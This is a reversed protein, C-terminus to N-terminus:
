TGRVCILLYKKIDFKRAVSRSFKFVIELLGSVNIVNYPQAIKNIANIFNLDKFNFEFNIALIPSAIAKANIKSM